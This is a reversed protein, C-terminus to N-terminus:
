SVLRLVPQRTQQSFPSELGCYFCCANDDPPGEFVMPIGALQLRTACGECVRHRSIKLLKLDTGPRLMMPGEYVRWWGFGTM